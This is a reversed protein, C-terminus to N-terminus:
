FNAARKKLTSCKRRKARTSQIPKECMVHKGSELAAVTIEAHSVNPTCVYVADLELKLMEKYDTFIKAKGNAFKENMDDAREKIIDCLATIEATDSFNKLAPLHKGRAIFGCGVIGVKLKKM